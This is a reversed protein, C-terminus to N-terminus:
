HRFAWTGIAYAVVDLPDAVAQAAYHPLLGEFVFSIFVWTVVLWSDPLVFQRASPLLRRQAALALTLLVLMAAVDAFYSTM